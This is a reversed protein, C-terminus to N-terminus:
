SRESLEFKIVDALSILHFKVSCIGFDELEVKVSVDPNVEKDKAKENWELGPYTQM